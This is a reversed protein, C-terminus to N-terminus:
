ESSRKTALSETRVRGSQDTWRINIQYEVWLIEPSPDQRIWAIWVHQNRLPLRPAALPASNVGVWEDPPMRPNLLIARTQNDFERQCYDPVYLVAGSPTVVRQGALHGRESIHTPSDKADPPLNDAFMLKFEAFSVSMTHEMATQLQQSAVTAERSGATMRTASSMISLFALLVFALVAMSIMIEVMTLGADGRRRPRATHKMWGYM